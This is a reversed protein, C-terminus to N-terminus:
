LKQSVLEKWITKVIFVNIDSTKGYAQSITLMGNLIIVDKYFVYLGSRSLMKLHKQNHLILSEILICAVRLFWILKIFYQM